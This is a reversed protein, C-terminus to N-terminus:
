SFSKCFLGTNNAHVECGSGMLDYNLRKGFGKLVFQVKCAIDRRSSSIVIKWNDTVTIWVRRDLPFDMSNMFGHISFGM